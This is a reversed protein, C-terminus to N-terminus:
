RGVEGSLLGDSGDEPRRQWHGGGGKGQRMAITGVQKERLQSREGGGKADAHATKGTLPLMSSSLDQALRKGGTLNFFRM